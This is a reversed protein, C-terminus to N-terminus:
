PRTALAVVSVGAPLDVHRLLGAELALSQECLNNLWTPLAILGTRPAPQRPRLREALRVAVVAPLLFSIAYTLRQVRLGAAELRAGLQRATYRRFHDLARDHDSWLFRYAPVTALFQGGPALMRRVEGLAAGDDPLHELVDLATILEFSEDAFPPRAADGRVLLRQGRQHCFRLPAGFADLGHPQGYRALLALTGGTGCGLDLVRRRPAPALHRDLLAALIRRRGVFWWYHDEFAAMRIHEAARM